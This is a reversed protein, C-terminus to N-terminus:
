AAPMKCIELLVLQWHAAFKMPDSAFASQMRAYYSEITAQRNEPSRESRLSEFLCPESFARFFATYAQACAKADGTKVLIQTYPDPLTMPEFRVLRLRTQRAFDSDPSLCGTWEQRTRYYIPLAMHLYEDPFLAGEKVMEVLVDNALNVLSGAGGDPSSLAGSAILVLRGTPRLETARNQLFGLWDARAQAAWADHAEGTQGQVWIHNPVDAPKRNLWHLAIASYGLALQAAPFIREFMSRGCAFCFVNTQGHLYSNPSEFVTAFLASFDNSPLDVHVVSIPPVPRWRSQVTEIITRMPQLSNGGQSSGFDGVVFRDATQAPDIANVAEVLMPRTYENANKQAESHLKYYGHGVMSERNEGGGAEPPSFEQQTDQQQKEM